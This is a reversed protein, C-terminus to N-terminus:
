CCPWGGRGTMAVGIVGIGLALDSQWLGVLTASIIGIGQVSFSFLGAAAGVRRPDIDIAGTLAGPFLFGCGFNYVSLAILLTTVSLTGTLVLILFGALGAVSCWSGIPATRAAGWRPLVRGVVFLGVANALMMIAFYFGVDEPKQGLPGTLIFPVAAVTGFFSGNNFACGAAFGAFRRHRLLLLFDALIARLGPGRGRLLNTEPLWLVSLLLFLLGMATSFLFISRWGFWAVSLGGIVLAAMPSIAMLLTLVGFRRSAQETTINDRASATACVRVAGSALAQFLRALILVLAGPAFAAVASCLVFLVGGGLALPRRGFRDSLSGTVLEAVAVGFLSLTLSLQIVQSSVNLDLAAGPMGATFLHTTMSNLAMAFALLSIPPQPVQQGSL